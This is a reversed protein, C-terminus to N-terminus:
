KERLRSARKQVSFMNVLGKDKHWRKFLDSSKDEIFREFSRATESTATDLDAIGLFFRDAM